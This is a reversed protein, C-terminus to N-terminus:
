LLLLLAAAVVQLLAVLWWGGPLWGALLWHLSWAWALAL